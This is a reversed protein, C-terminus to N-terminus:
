AHTFPYACSCTHTHHAYPMYTHMGPALLYRDMEMVGGRSGVKAVKARWRGISNHLSGEINHMDKPLVDEHEKLKQNLLNLSASIGGGADLGPQVGRACVAFYLASHRCASPATTITM